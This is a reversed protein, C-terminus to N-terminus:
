IAMILSNVHLFFHCYCKTIYIYSECKIRLLHQAQTTHSPCLSSSLHLCSSMNVELKEQGYWAANDLRTTIYDNVREHLMVVVCCWLCICSYVVCHCNLHLFSSAPLLVCSPKKLFIKGRVKNCPKFLTVWLKCTLPHQLGFMFKM